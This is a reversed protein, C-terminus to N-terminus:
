PGADGRAPLLGRRVRAYLDSPKYRDRAGLVNMLYLAVAYLVLLLMGSVVLYLFNNGRPLAWRLAFVIASSSAVCVFVEGAPFPLKVMRRSMVWTLVTLVSYTLLTSYAVGIIGYRAILAFSAAINVALAVVNPYVLRSTIKKLHFIYDLHYIKIGYIFVSVVIFPMLLSASEVYKAGFLFSSVGERNILLWAMMPSCVMFLLTANRKLHEKAREMGQEEYVRVISPFAALNIVMMMSVVVNQSFDYPVSFIGVAHPGLKFNVIYRSAAYILYTILTNVTLPLAYQLQMRLMGSDIGWRTRPAYKRFFLATPLLTGALTGIVIAVYGLGAYALACGLALALLSKASALVSYLKVRGESRFYTLVCEHGGQASVLIAALLYVSTFTDLAFKGATMLAGVLVVAATVSYFLTVVTGAFREKDEGGQAAAFRLVSLRLWQFFINNALTVTTIVLAYQGYETPELLRTYAAIAAFSCLGTIVFTLLYAFSQKIM